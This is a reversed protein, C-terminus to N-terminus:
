AVPSISLGQPTDSHRHQHNTTATNTTSPPPTPTDKFSVLAPLITSSHPHRLAARLSDAEEGNGPGGAKGM